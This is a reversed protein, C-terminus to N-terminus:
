SKEEMCSHRRANLPLPGKCDFLTAIPEGRARARRVDPCDPRHVLVQNDEGATLAIDLQKPM